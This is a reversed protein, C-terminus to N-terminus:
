HQSSEACLKTIKHWHRRLSERLEKPEGSTLGPRGLVVVDLAGLTEHHLRFAERIIRKFRNRRVATGSLKVSIALGLRPHGLGNPCGVVTFYRDTSRRGTKFVRHFDKAGALKLRKVSSVRTGYNPQTALTEGRSADRRCACGAKPM